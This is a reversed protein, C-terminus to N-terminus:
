SREPRSIRVIPRKGCDCTTSRCRIVTSPVPFASTNNRSRPYTHFAFRIYVGAPSSECPSSPLSVRLGIPRFIRPVHLCINLECHNNRKGNPGFVGQSSRPEALNQHDSILSASFDKTRKSKAPRDEDSSSGSDLGPRSEGGDGFLLFRLCLELCPRETERIKRLERRMYARRKIPILPSREVDVLPTGLPHVAQPYERPFTFTVRVFVNM